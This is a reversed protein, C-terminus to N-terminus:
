APLKHHPHHAHNFISPLTPGWQNKIKSSAQNLIFCTLRDNPTVCRTSAIKRMLLMEDNKAANKDTGAIPAPTM